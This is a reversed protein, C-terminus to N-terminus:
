SLSSASNWCCWLCCSVSLICCSNSLIRWSVSRFWFSVYSNILLRLPFSFAIETEGILVGDGAGETSGEKNGGDPGTSTGPVNGSVGTLGSGDSDFGILDSGVSDSCTL